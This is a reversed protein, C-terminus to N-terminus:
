QECPTMVQGLYIEATKHALDLVDLADCNSLIIVSFRQSPIQM